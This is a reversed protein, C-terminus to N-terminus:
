HLSHMLETPTFGQGDKIVRSIKSLNSVNALPNADLIVLDALRGPAIRGMDNEMGM